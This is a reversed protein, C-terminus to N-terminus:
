ALPKKQAMGIRRPLKLGPEKVKEFVIIDRATVGDSLMFKRDSIMKMGLYAQIKLASSLEEDSVHSKYCILVGEKKLLPSALELLSPLKSLARATAASFMKPSLTALDEIRGDYTHIMDSYGLQDLISRVTAM